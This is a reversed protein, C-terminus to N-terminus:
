LPHKIFNMSNAIFLLLCKVGLGFYNENKSIPKYWLLYFGPTILNIFYFKVIWNFRKIINRLSCLSFYELVNNKFQSNEKKFVTYFCKPILTRLELLLPSFNNVVSQVTNTSIYLTFVAWSVQNTCFSFLISKIFTTKINLANEARHSSRFKNQSSKAILFNFNFIKPNIFINVINTWTDRQSGLDPWNGKLNRSQTFFTKILCVFSRLM